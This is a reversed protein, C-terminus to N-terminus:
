SDLGGIAPRVISSVSQQKTHSAQNILHNKLIDAGLNISPVLESAGGFTVEPVGDPSVAIIAVADTSGARADATAKALARLVNENATKM